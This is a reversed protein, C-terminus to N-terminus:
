KSNSLELEMGSELEVGSKKETLVKHILDAAYAGAEAYPTGDKYIGSIVTRTNELIGVRPNYTIYVGMSECTAMCTREGLIMCVAKAGVESAILDGSGLRPYRLFAPTGYDIGHSELGQKLAPWFDMLGVELAISSNGEGILIQVDPNKKLKTRVIELNEDDLLRSLYPQTLYDQVSDPMTKIVPMGLKDLFEKSVPQLVADRAASLFAYKRLYTETKDRSSLGAKGLGLLALTRKKMRLYAEKNKPSEVLFHEQEPASFIDETFGEDTEEAEQATCEKCETKLADALETNERLVQRITKLILEENIMPENNM